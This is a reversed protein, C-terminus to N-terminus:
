QIWAEQPMNNILREFGKTSGYMEYFKVENAREYAEEIQRVMQLYGTNKDRLIDM